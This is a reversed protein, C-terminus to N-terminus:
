TKGTKEGPMLNRMKRGLSEAHLASEGYPLDREPPQVIDFHGYDDRGRLMLVMDRESGHQVVDPSIYRIALGIRHRGSDNPGSGHVIGVHHLSFQGPRLVFDVAKSEDVEVAIEQGRSLMNAEAYTERQPLLAGRHTGPIVRLCANERTSDSLAVWATTVNPPSLGWYTADQHWSVYTRDHPFKPFWQSSWAMVNPGLVSEVADLIRPNAVIDYVWRLFLHTEILFSGRERPLLAKLKADNQEWYTLFKRCLPAAEQGSYARVPCHYGRERYADQQEANLRTM